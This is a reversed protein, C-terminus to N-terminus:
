QVVVTISTTQTISGSTATVTVAYNGPTTGPNGPNGTSSGGGCATIGTAVIAVLAGIALILRKWGRRRAPIGCFVMCALVAGGTAYWSGSGGAPHVLLASTPATTSIVLTATGVGNTISVPSSTGFNLTPPDQAAAPSSTLAATLTVSGTFGGAPTISITLSNGTSAGPVVTVTTGAVTFNPVPATVVTVSATGTAGTYIASSASDPTYTVTVTDTGTALVGAALTFTATAFNDLKIAASKYNESSIVVTGSPGQNGPISASVGVSVTLTQATTISNGSLTVGVYPTTIPAATVTVSASGSAGNYVPASAADPTYTATLADQGVALAEAPVTFFAENLSSRLAAATSTYTGSKLVVTGTPNENPNGGSQGANILFTVDLQQATTVSSSGPVVEIFPTIKGVATVTISATGTASNFQKASGSDPTYTATLANKGAPLVDADLVLFASGDSQVLLAASTYSGSTVVVSGTPTNKGPGSIQIFIFLQQASTISTPNLTVQVTPTIKAGNYNSLFSSVDLSGLGTVEDYGTEVLYGAQGGTLGAPGPDSNNCMSPTSAECNGVGSSAVTVDHFSAPSSAATAYLAPNFNGQGVGVQENLLATIAAMSPAAASTGFFYEFGYEGQSNAVCSAGAAAFCAFYGDHGSASFSLDPTYRGARTSPVGSGTQWSPTAIISSVGGGSAAVQPKSNSDLPENWAGEPIYSVASTLNQNNTGWYQSPDTFDNFETCLELFL